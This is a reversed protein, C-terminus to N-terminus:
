TRVRNPNISGGVFSDFLDNNTPDTKAPQSGGGVASANQRELDAIEEKKLNEDIAKKVQTEIQKDKTISDYVLQLTKATFPLKEKEIFDLISHGLKEDEKFDPHQGIWQDIENKIKTKQEREELKKEVISDLNDEKAEPTKGIESLATKIQEALEPKATLVSDLATLFKENEELKKKTENTEKGQEIIKTQAEDYSKKAEDPTKFKGWFLEEPKGEEPTTGQPQGETPKVGETPAEVKTEAPKPQEGTPAGPTNVPQETGVMDSFEVAPAAGPTIPESM